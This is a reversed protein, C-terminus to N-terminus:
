NQWVEDCWAWCAEIGSIMEYADLSRCLVEHWDNKNKIKITFPKHGAPLEYPRIRIGWKHYNKYLNRLTSDKLQSYSNAAIIGVQGKQMEAIKKLIWVSGVDTKGSGVGCGAFLIDKTSELLTIQYDHALFNIEKM